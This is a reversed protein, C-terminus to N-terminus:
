LLNTERYFDEYKFWCVLSYRTGSLIPSVEHVIDSNFLIINGIEKSATITNNGKYLLLEGGEYESEDSLQVVLSRFRKNSEEVDNRSSDTHQKFFSGQEYKIINVFHPLTLAGLEKFKYFLLPHIRGRAQLTIETTNRLSTDTSEVGDKYISSVIFEDKKTFELIQQIEERSFLVKQVIM